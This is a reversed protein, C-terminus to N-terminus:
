PPARVAAEAGSRNEIHQEHEKIIAKPMGPWSEAGSLPTFAAAAEVGHTRALLVRYLRSAWKLRSKEGGEHRVQYLANCLAMAVPLCMSRARMPGKKTPIPPAPSLRDFLNAERSLKGFLERPSRAGMVMGLWWNARRLCAEIVDPANREIVRNRVLAARIFVARGAESKPAAADAEQGRLHKIEVESCHAFPREEPLACGGRARRQQFRARLREEYRFLRCAAEFSIDPDHCDCLLTLEARCYERLTLVFLHAPSFVGELRVLEIPLWQELFELTLQQPSSLQALKLLHEHEVEDIAMPALEPLPWPGANQFQTFEDDFSSNEEHHEGRQRPSSGPAAHASGPQPPGPKSSPSSDTGANRGSGGEPCGRGSPSPFEEEVGEAGGLLSGPDELLQAEIGDYLALVRECYDADPAAALERGRARLKGARAARAEMEAMTVAM